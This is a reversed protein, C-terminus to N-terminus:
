QDQLDEEELAFPKNPLLDGLDADCAALVHFLTPLNTLENLIAALKTVTRLVESEDMKVHIGITRLRACIGQMLEDDQPETEPEPPEKPAAIAPPPRMLKRGEDSAFRGLGKLKLQFQNALERFQEATPVPWEIEWGSEILSKAILPYEAAANRESKTVPIDNIISLRAGVLVLCSLRFNEREALPTSTLLIEKLHSQRSLGDYDELGSEFAIIKELKPQPALTRLSKIPTFSIDLIRL